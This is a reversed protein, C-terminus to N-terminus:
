QHMTLAALKRAIHTRLTTLMQLILILEQMADIIDHPSFKLGIPNCLMLKVALEHVSAEMDIHVILVIPQRGSPRSM